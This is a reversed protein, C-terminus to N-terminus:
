KRKLYDKFESDRAKAADAYERWKSFMGGMDKSGRKQQLQSVLSDQYLKHACHQRIQVLSKCMARKEMKTLGESFQLVTKFQSLNEEVEAVTAEIEQVQVAEEDRRKVMCELQMTIKMLNRGQRRLEYCDPGYSEKFAKKAAAGQKFGAVESELKLVLGNLADIEVQKTDAAKVQDRLTKVESELAEANVARRCSAAELSKSVCMQTM